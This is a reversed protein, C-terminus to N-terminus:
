IIEITLIQKTKPTIKFRDDLRNGIVWVIKGDSEIIWTNEKDILSFKNDVFYDSLKKMGKMGLPRFKDGKIWKRVVLPFKLKNYDVMGMDKNTSIVTNKTFPQKIINLKVGCDIIQEEDYIAFCSSQHHNIPTLVLFDRDRVLRYKASYFIKGSEKNISDIVNSVVDYNFGYQKLIQFLFTKKGSINILSEIEIYKAGDKESVISNKKEEIFSNLLMETERFRAINNNFMSKSNKDIDSLVPMLKHRIKNRFHKFSTNSSDERFELNNDAAYKEIEDRYAFLLPRIVNNKKPLIGHLGSIGTGRFLNIFFTELQDDLHHGTAILEFDNEVSLVNFWDYRLDRAAMEISVGNESAYGATDFSKLFLEVNYKKALEEVFKQDNDSEDGRLNFNCHAISFAFQAKSFLDLMVVSDVGGSVTLLVKSNESILKEKSIFGIFSKYM